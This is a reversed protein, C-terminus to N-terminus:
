PRKCGRSCDSKKNTIPSIWEGSGGCESCSAKSNSNSKKSPDSKPTVPSIVNGKMVTGSGGKPVLAISSFKFRPGTKTGPPTMLPNAVVGGTQMPKGTKMIAALQPSIMHHAMALLVQRASDELIDSPNGRYQALLADDVAHQQSHRTGMNPKVTGSPQVVWETVTARHITEGSPSQPPHRREQVLEVERLVKGAEPCPPPAVVEVTFSTAHQGLLTIDAGTKRNALVWISLGKLHLSKNTDADYINLTDPDAVNGRMYIRKITM